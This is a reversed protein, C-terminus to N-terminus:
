YFKALERATLIAMSFSRKQIPLLAVILLVIQLYVCNYASETLDYAAMMRDMRRKQGGMSLSQAFPRVIALDSNFM